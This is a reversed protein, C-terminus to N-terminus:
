MQLIDKLFQEVQKRAAKLSPPDNDQPKTMPACHGAKYVVTQINKTKDPETVSLLHWPDFYGNTSIINTGKLKKGGYKKNIGDIDPKLGKIGFIKECWGVIPELHMDDFFTSDPGYSTKFYSHTRTRTLLRGPVSCLPARARAHAVCGFENCKQWWWSRDQSHVDRLGKLFSAESYDTCGAASNSANLARAWGVLPSHASTLLDCTKNLPWEAHPNEFQDSSGLTGMTNFKFMFQDEAKILPGCSNFLREVYRTEGVAFLQQLMQAGDHAVAACAPPAVTGFWNFFGRYDAQALEPGSPAVSGVVLEPYLGRFWASLAGSYSCGFVVWPGGTADAAQQARVFAAADALAQAASLYRQLDRTAYSATPRSEGYYRHELAIYRAGFARAWHEASKEQFEFFQARPSALRPSALRASSRSRIAAEGVAVIM